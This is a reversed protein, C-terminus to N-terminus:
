FYIRFHDSHLMIKKPTGEFTMGHPVEVGIEAPQQAVPAVTEKVKLPKIRIRKPGNWEAINDIDRKLIYLKQTLGMVPRNFKKALRRALQEIPEGSAIDTKMTIIEETTYFKVTAMNEPKKNYTETTKNQIIDEVTFGRSLARKIQRIKKILGFGKRNFDEGRIKTIRRVPVNAKIDAAIIRIEDPTYYHHIYQHEEM